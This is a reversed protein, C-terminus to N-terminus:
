QLGQFETPHLDNGNCVIMDEILAIGAEGLRLIMKALLSNEESARPASRFYGPLRNNELFVSDLDPPQAHRSAEIAAAVRFFIAIRMYGEEGIGAFRHSSWAEIFGSNEFGDLIRSRLAIQQDNRNMPSHLVRRRWVCLVDVDSMVHEVCAGAGHNAMMRMHQLGDFSIHRM